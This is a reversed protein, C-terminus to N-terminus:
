SVREKGAAQRLCLAGCLGHQSSAFCIAYPDAGYSRHWAETALVAFLPLTAAGVEGLERAPTELSLDFGMVDGFRGFLLQLERVRRQEHTVDSFLWNCRVNRARLDAVATKIAATLGRAMTQKEPDRATPEDAVGVALLQSVARTRALPHRAGALVLCAAAEGPRLSDLNDATMLRDERELEALVGADYYSDVGCVVAIDGPSAELLRQAQALATAGAAVGDAFVQVDNPEVDLLPHTTILALAENGERTLPAGKSGSCYRAPLALCLRLRAAGLNAALPGLAGELAARALAALRGPGVLEKPLLSVAGLVVSEGASDVFPSEVFNGRGARLYFGTHRATPGIPTIAGWSVCALAGSM